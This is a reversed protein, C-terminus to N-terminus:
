NIRVTTTLATIIFENYKCEHILNLQLNTDIKFNTSYEGLNFEQFNEMDLVKFNLVYFHSLGISNIHNLFVVDKTNFVM